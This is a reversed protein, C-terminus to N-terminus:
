TKLEDCKEEIPDMQGGGAARSGGDIEKTASLRQVIPSVPYSDPPPSRQIAENKRLSHPYHPHDAIDKFPSIFSPSDLATLSPKKAKKNARMIPSSCSKVCGMGMDSGINDGSGHSAFAQFPSCNSLPSDLPSTVETASESFSTTPTIANPDM